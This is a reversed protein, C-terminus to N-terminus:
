KREKSKSRRKHHIAFKSRDVAKQERRAQRENKALLKSERKHERKEARLEKRGKRSSLDALPKSDGPKQAFSEGCLCSLVLLTLIMLKKMNKHKIVREDSRM